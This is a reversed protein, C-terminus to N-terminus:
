RRQQAMAQGSGAPEVSVLVARITGFWRSPLEVRVPLPGRGPLPQGLWVDATQPRHAQEADQDGLRGALLRSELVCKLAPGGFGGEAPLVGQGATRVAYDVRRRGDYVQAGTDCRGTRAVVRTLKALASLADVTNARLSAPVPERETNPPELAQIVPIGAPTYDIAVMRRDGRWTGSARYRDPAPETGRWAGETSTVQDGRAFFGAMGNMQIRTRILYRPGDLDILAEVKMVTMGAAHVEYHALLPEARAAAPLLALGLALTLSRGM